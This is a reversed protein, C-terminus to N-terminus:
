VVPLFYIHCIRPARLSTRTRTYTHTHKHSGVWIESGMKETGLSMCIPKDTLFVDVRM